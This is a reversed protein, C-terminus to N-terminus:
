SLCYRHYQIFQWLGYAQNRVIMGVALYDPQASCDYAQQQHEVEAKTFNSRVPGATGNSHYLLLQGSKELRGHLAWEQSANKPIVLGQASWPTVACCRPATGACAANTSLATGDSCDVPEILWGGSAFTDIWDDVDLNPLVTGNQFPSITLDSAGSKLWRVNLRMDGASETSPPTSTNYLRVSGNWEKFEWSLHQLKQQKDQNVPCGWVHGATVGQTYYYSRASERDWGGKRSLAVPLSYKAIYCVWNVPGTDPPVIQLAVAVFHCVEERELVGDGNVDMQAFRRKNRPVADPDVLDNKAVFVRYYEHWAIQKDRNVDCRLLKSWSHLMARRLKVDGNELETCQLQLYPGSVQEAEDALVRIAGQKAGFASESTSTAPTLTVTCWCLVLVSIWSGTASCGCGTRALNPVRM